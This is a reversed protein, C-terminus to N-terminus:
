RGYYEKVTEAAVSQLFAALEPDLGATYKNGVPSRKEIGAFTTCAALYTGELTPHSNDSQWLGDSKGDENAQRWAAGVPAVM